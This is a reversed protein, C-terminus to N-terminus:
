RGKQLSIKVIGLIDFKRFIVDAYWDYYQTESKVPHHCQTDDM